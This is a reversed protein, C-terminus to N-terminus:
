RRRKSKSKKMFFFYIGICIVALIIISIIPSTSNFITRLVNVISGAISEFINKPEASMRMFWRSFKTWLINIFKVFAGSNVSSNKPTLIYHLKLLVRYTDKPIKGDVCHWDKNYDLGHFDGTDMM